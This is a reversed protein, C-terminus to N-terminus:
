VQVHEPTSPPWGMGHEVDILADHPGAVVACVLVAGEVPRQLTPVGEETVPLPGHFQVQEPISPLGGAAQVVDVL